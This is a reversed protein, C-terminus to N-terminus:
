FRRAYHAVQSGRFCNNNCLRIMYINQFVKFNTGGARQCKAIAVVLKIMKLPGNAWDSSRAVLLALAMNELSM